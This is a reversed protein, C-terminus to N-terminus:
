RMAGRKDSVLQQYDNVARTVARLDCPRRSLLGSAIRQSSLVDPDEALGLRAAKAEYGKLRGKLEARRDLLGRALEEHHRILQLASEIRRQLARLAVPDPATMSELDGRLEPETDADAPLAGLVVREADIRSQQAHETAERLEDLRVRTSAVADPWNEQLAVLEAIATIHQDVDGATLSLPDTASVTLLDAIEKPTGAGAADLRKLLPAIGEAVKTNIADVADLFETVGARAARMRDRTDALVGSELLRTLDARDDDDLKSRRERVARASQLTSTVSALDDWLQGLTTEVVVWRAATAGAPPYRRVHQLGPHNDFDILTTSLDGVQQTWSVLERDIEDLTLINM